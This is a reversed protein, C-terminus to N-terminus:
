RSEPWLWELAERSLVISLSAQYELRPAALDLRTVQAMASVSQKGVSLRVGLEAGCRRARRLLLVAERPVRDLDCRAPTDAWWGPASAEMAGVGLLPGVAGGELLLFVGVKEWRCPPTPLDHLHRPPAAGLRYFDDRM